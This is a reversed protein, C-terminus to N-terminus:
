VFLEPPLEYEHNERRWMHLCYPMQNVYQSRKPHFQVVTEDERWFLDKVFNMEEWTPCRTSTSVSVHEWGKAMPNDVCNGSSMITLVCSRMPIRFFGYSAGNPAGGLEPHEVRYKDLESIPECKM